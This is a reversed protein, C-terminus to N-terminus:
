SGVGREGMFPVNVNWGSAGMLATWDIEPNGSHQLMDFPMIPLQPQGGARQSRLGFDAPAPNAMFSGYPFAGPPPPPPQASSAHIHLGPPSFALPFVSAPGPRARVGGRATPAPAPHVRPRQLLLPRLRARPDTRGSRVPLPRRPPARPRHQPWRPASDPRPASDGFRADWRGRKRLAALITLARDAIGIEGQMVFGVNAARSDELHKIARDILALYERGHELPPNQALAVALAVAADFAFYTYYFLTHVPSPEPERLAAAEDAADCIFRVQAIALEICRQNSPNVAAPKNSASPSASPLLSYPRHLSLLGAHYYIGCLHRQLTLIRQQTTPNPNLPEPNRFNISPHMKSLWHDYQAELDEVASYPTAQTKELLEMLIIFSQQYHVHPNESGDGNHTGPLLKVDFSDAILMRPRGLVLSYIRDSSALYWWSLSRLEREVKDMAEWKHWGPDRHLGVAQAMRITMGILKWADSVRGHDTLYCCYCAAAICSLTVGHSMSQKTAWAYTPSSLAVDEILRRADMARWFYTEATPGLLRRPALTIVSYLLLLWHPNIERTCAPCGGAAHCAPGVCRLDLHAWMQQCASRFWQEPIGLVFNREAFFGDILTELSSRSPLGAILRRIPESMSSEGPQIPNSLPASGAGAHPFRIRNVNGLKHIACVITGTGIYEDSPALTLRAMEVAALQVDSECPGGDETSDGPPDSSQLYFLDPDEASPEPPAEEDPTDVTRWEPPVMTDGDLSWTLRDSHQGSILKNQRTITEELLTIRATLAAITSQAPSTPAGDPPRQPAPRQVLPEWRCLHPIGRSVCLSCPIQRDCKQRRRTCEVCSLRQRRRTQKLPPPPHRTRRGM